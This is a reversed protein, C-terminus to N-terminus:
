SNQKFFCTLSFAEGILRLGDQKENESLILEDVFKSSGIHFNAGGRNMRSDHFFILGGKKVKHSYLEYDKKVAEYTHDGDIFIFHLSDNEFMDSVNYSFDKIFGWRFEAFDTNQNIIQESGVLSSEMSDPIIPDIGVLRIFHGIKLLHASTEGNLVGIEIGNLDVGFRKNLENLALTFLEKESAPDHALKTTVSEFDYYGEKIEM